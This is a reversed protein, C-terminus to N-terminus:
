YHNVSDHFWLLFLIFTVAPITAVVYAWATKKRNSLSWVAWLPLWAFAEFVALVGSAYSVWGIFSVNPDDSFVFIFLAAAFGTLTLPIAGTLVLAVVGKPLAQKPIARSPLKQNLTHSEQMM